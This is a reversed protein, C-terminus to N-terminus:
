EFNLYSLALYGPRSIKVAVINNRNINYKRPHTEATQHGICMAVAVWDSMDTTVFVKADNLYGANWGGAGGTAKISVASLFCPWAFRAILEGKQGQSYFGSDPYANHTNKLLYSQTPPYTNNYLGQHEFLWCFPRPMYHKNLVLLANGQKNSCYLDFGDGIRHLYVCDPEINSGTPLNGVHKIAKFDAM